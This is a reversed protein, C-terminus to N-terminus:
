NLWIREKLKARDGFYICGGAFSIYDDPDDDGVTDIITYGSGLLELATKEMMREYTWLCTRDFESQTDSMRQYLGRQRDTNM